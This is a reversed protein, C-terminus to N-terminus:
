DSSVGESGLTLSPRGDARFTELAELWLEDNPAREWNPFWPGGLTFHALRLADPRPQVNVLWNWRPSLTGIESDALWEFGHLQRGPWRNLAHLTLRRNGPHDANFLMVSSWNKRRYVTQPQRDMKMTERPVYQHQVVQVAYRPDFEALIERVDGTSLIDCDMFLAPGSQALLPTLFRTAAFQTSAPADSVQDWIVGDRMEFPRDVLGWAANRGREIPTISLPGSAHRHLSDALVEFAIPERPDYGIYIKLAEM